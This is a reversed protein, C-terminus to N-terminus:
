YLYNLATVDNNNFDRNQGGGICALMWSNPDATIPTGPIHVAGVTSAGENAYGGGCSYSRDMYDTHRFGICHGMEHALITALYNVNPNSGIANSNVNVTGYPNGSNTPFGASALYNGNVKKFQINGNSAVREFRITLNEANYRAVAEDLGAIYTAPLCKGCGTAMSVTITRPASSVSVLNNTRYQETEAVILNPSTIDRHLDEETLFIDGEVIYGGDAMIVDQTSFGQQAILSLVEQSIQEQSEVKDSKSCSYFSFSVGFLAVITASLYIKKM